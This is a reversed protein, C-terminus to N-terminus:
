AIRRTADGGGVKETTFRRDTPFSQVAGGFLRGLANRIRKV